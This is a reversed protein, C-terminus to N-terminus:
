QSGRRSPAGAREAHSLPVRAWQGREEEGCAAKVVQDVGGLQGVIFRHLSTEVVTSPNGFHALYESGPLQQAVVAAIRAPQLVATDAVRDGPWSPAATGGLGRHAEHAEWIFLMLEVTDVAESCVVSRARPCTPNLTMSFMHFTNTKHKKGYSSM